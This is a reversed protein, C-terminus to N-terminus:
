VATTPPRKRVHQRAAEVLHAVEAKPMGGV